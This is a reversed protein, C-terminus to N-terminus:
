ERKRTSKQKAANGGNANRFEEETKTGKKRNCTRCSVGRNEVDRTGRRVIPTRHDLEYSDPHGKGERVKTGCYICAGGQNNLADAKDKQSFDGKRSELVGLAKEFDTVVLPGVACLQVDVPLVLYM